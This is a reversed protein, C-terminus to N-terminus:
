FTATYNFFPLPYDLSCKAITIGSGTYTRDSCPTALSNAFYVDSIKPTFSTLHSLNYCQQPGFSVPWQM